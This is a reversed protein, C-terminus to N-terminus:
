MASSLPGMRDRKQERVNNKIEEPNRLGIKEGIYQKEEDTGKGAMAALGSCLGYQKIKKHLMQRSIGLIRAARAANGRGQRLIEAIYEREFNLCAPKLPRSELHSSVKLGDHGSRDRQGGVPISRYEGPLRINEHYFTQVVIQESLHEPTIIQGDPSFAVSRQIENELERVNGPWAYRVLIDLAEQAIGQVQKGQKVLSQRIFGFVLFPIDERRERLPPVRIPFVSLRYYLDERFRKNRMEQELERNTASIVRVDVRRSRAEGVRRIEGEQLVRLLKLQMASSTEGIEDLFLTGVDALEFLSQKDSM